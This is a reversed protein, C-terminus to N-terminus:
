KKDSFDVLLDLGLYSEFFGFKAVGVGMEVMLSCSKIVHPDDVLKINDERDKGHAM